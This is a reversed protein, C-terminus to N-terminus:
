SGEQVGGPVGSGVALAALTSTPCSSVEQIRKEFWREFINQHVENTIGIEAFFSRDFQPTDTAFTTYALFVQEPDEFFSKLAAHYCRVGHGLSLLWTDLPGGSLECRESQLGRLCKGHTHPA